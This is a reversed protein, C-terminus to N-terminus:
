NGQGPEDLLGREALFDHFEARKSLYENVEGHLRNLEFRELFWVVVGATIGLVLGALIARRMDASM